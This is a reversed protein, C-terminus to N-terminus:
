TLLQDYMPKRTPVCRRPPEMNQWTVITTKNEILDQLRKLGDTMRSREQENTTQLDISQFTRGLNTSAELLVEKHTLVDPMTYQPPAFVAFTNTERVVNTALIFAKFKQHRHISMGIVFEEVGHFAQTRQDSPDKFCLIQWGFPLVPVADYSSQGHLYTFASIKPNVHTEQLM